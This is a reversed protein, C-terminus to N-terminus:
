ELYGLDRLREADGADVEVEAAQGHRAEFARAAIEQGRMWTRLSASLDEKPMVPKTEAPDQALDFGAYHGDGREILKRLDHSVLAFQQPADPWWVFRLLASAVYEHVRPVGAGLLTAALSKGDAEPLAPLGALDLLTPALDPLGVPEDVVRAPLQGRGWFLLPIHIQAQFM